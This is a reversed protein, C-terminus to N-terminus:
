GGKLSKAILQQMLLDPQLPAIGGHPSPYCEQLVGVVQHAVLSPQDALLHENRLLAVAADLSTAGGVMSIAACAQEVLPLQDHPMGRAKMIRNWYSRERALLGNLISRERDLARSDLVDLLAQCHLLLIQDYIGSTMDGPAATGENRLKGSFARFAANFSERRETVTPAVPYLPIDFQDHEVYARNIVKRVASNELLRGFWLHERELFLIRIRPASCAEISEILRSLAEKKRPDAAYDVIILLSQNRLDTGAWPSGSSPFNREDFFGLQWENAYAPTLRECLELGLRTKGIGGAGSFARLGLKQSNECWQKLRGLEEERGQGHFPVIQFEPCLLSCYGHIESNWTSKPFVLWPLIPRPGGATTKSERANKRENIGKRRLARRLHAIYDGIIKGFQSPTWRSPTRNFLRTVEDRFEKFEGKHLEAKATKWILAAARKAADVQPIAVGERWRKFSTRDPHQNDQFTPIREEAWAILGPFANPDPNELDQNAATEM